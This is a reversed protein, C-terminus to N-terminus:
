MINEGWGMGRNKTERRGGISEGKGEVGAEGRGAGVAAQVTDVATVRAGAAGVGVGGAGVVAVAAGVQGLLRRDAQGAHGGM